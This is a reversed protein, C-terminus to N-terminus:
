IHAVVGPQSVGPGGWVELGALLGDVAARAFQVRVSIVVTLTCVSQPEEGAESVSALVVTQGGRGWCNSSGAVRAVRLFSARRGVVAGDVAGDVGGGLVVQEGVVVGVGARGVVLPRVGVAAVRHQGAAAGHIRVLVHIM